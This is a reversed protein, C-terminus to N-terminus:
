GSFGCDGSGFSLKWKGGEKVLKQEEPSQKEAGIAATVLATATDGDVKINSAEATFKKGDAFTKVLTLLAAVDSQNCNKRSESDLLNVLDGAKGDNFAKGFDSIVQRIAAEDGKPEGGGGSCGVLLATALLAGTILATIKKM